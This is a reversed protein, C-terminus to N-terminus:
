SEGENPSVEKYFVLSINSNLYDENINFHMLMRFRNIIWNEIVIIAM